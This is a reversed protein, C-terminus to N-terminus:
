HGALKAILPAAGAPDGGLRIYSFGFRARREELLDVCAEVSGVLVAPSERLLKPDSALLTTWRTTPRPSSSGGIECLYVNVQFEIADTARGAADSAARVWAVKADFEAAGLDEAARMTVGDEPLRAHIGVIDAERAAMELVRRGGGGILVPPHPRQFTPQPADIHAVYAEGVHDVVQGECLAKFLRVSEELRAIRRGPADFAMGLAAYDDPSWGAGLGIELRGGSLLDMTAAARHLLMPHRFDNVLVTSLVRLTTTAEAAATMVTLPDMTWGGTIHESVSVSNFGWGELRRLDDRWARPDDRLAPMPACFRFPHGTNVVHVV